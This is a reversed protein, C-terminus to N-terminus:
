VPKLYVVPLVRETMSVYSQQRPNIRYIDPLIASREDGALEEACVQYRKAGLQVFVEPQAQLNLWWLPHQDQGNNSAVVVVSDRYPYCAIPVPRKKGSKRGITEILVMDIGAMRAGVRGGTLRILQSHLKGFWNWNAM